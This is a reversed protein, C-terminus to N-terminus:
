AVVVFAGRQKTGDPLAWEAVVSGIVEHDEDTGPSLVRVVRLIPGLGTASFGVLDTAVEGDEAARTTPLDDPTATVTVSHDPTDSVSQAQAEARGGLLALLQAVLVPDRAGDYVWRPGLVGHETTGVLAAEAGDLPAGRYTLPVHYSVAAPGSSDVVVMFEIGVEGAPDDLRFGGARSLVPEAAGKYWTRTPLWDGILELKSPSLTTEHITAVASGVKAQPLVVSLREAWESLAYIASRPEESRTKRTHAAGVAPASVV